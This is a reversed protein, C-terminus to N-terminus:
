SSSSLKMSDFYSLVSAWDKYDGQGFHIHEGQFKDAGNATRDDILFDGIVLHKNHTLTLKKYAEDGLYKRVWIIKDSWATPNEWPATSCIYVDYDQSLKKFAEVAGDLPQMQSFIGPIDDLDGAYEEVLHKPMADIGSQFNVLVNDMDIQIIIRKTMNIQRALDLIM